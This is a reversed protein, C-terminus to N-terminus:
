KGGLEVVIAKRIRICCSLLQMEEDAGDTLSKDTEGLCLAIKAKARPPIYDNLILLDHL